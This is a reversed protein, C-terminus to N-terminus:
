SQVAKIVTDQWWDAWAQARSEPTTCGNKM